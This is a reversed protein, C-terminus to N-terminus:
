RAAPPAPSRSLAARCVAATVAPTLRVRPPASAAPAPTQDAGCVLKLLAPRRHGYLDLILADVVQADTTGVPVPELRRIAGDKDRSYWAPRGGILEPFKYIGMLPSPTIPTPLRNPM